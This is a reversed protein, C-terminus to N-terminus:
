LCTMGFCLKKFDKKLLDSYDQYTRNVLRVFNVVPSRKPKDLIVSCFWSRRSKFAFGRRFANGASCALWSAFDTAKRRLTLLNDFQLKSCWLADHRSLARLNQRIQRLLDIRPM